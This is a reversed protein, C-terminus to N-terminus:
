NGNIFTNETYYKGGTLDNCDFRKLLLDNEKSSNVGRITTFGIKYGVNGAIEAVETTCSEETGYPYSVLEIKAGTLNEFYLKSNELEFRISNKPLLGLPFHNHTHSGLYGIEALAIIETKNMYIKENVESELYFEDFLGKMIFELKDFPILFNLVYKLEATNEDDYRYIKHANCKDFENISINGSKSLFHIFRIPSLISRLLHIKHVTSIKNEQFNRSNLFFIAPIKMEELIACGFKYQEKLGDDFTIFYYNIPSKLIEKLNKLLDFSSVFDGENKLLKLQNKFENPSVGYISPYASSFEERIYHYNSVILM